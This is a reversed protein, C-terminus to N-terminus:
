EMRVWSLKNEVGSEHAQLVLRNTEAIFSIAVKPEGRAARRIGIVQFKGLHKADAVLSSNGQFTNVVIQTQNDDATSFTQTVSCPLKCGKELLPTLIGGLTEIGVSEVLSGNAIPVNTTVTIEASKTCSSLAICAILSVPWLPKEKKM